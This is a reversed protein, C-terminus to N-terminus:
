PDIGLFAMLTLDPQRNWKLLRRWYLDDERKNHLAYLVFLAPHVRPLLTPQLLSAASVVESSYSSYINYHKLSAELMLTKFHFYNLYLGLALFFLSVKNESWLGYLIKFISM